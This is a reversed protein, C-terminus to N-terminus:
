PSVRWLSGDELGYVLSAPGFGEPLPFIATAIAAPNAISALQAVEGGAITVVRLSGRRADPIALDAVGDRNWDVVAALGQERSGIAHNSFGSVAADQVLGDPTLEFYRLTGGIHPTEVYAVEIAGDGDFDAAGAPNLWRSPRGIPPAEDLLGVQGDFLSFVALASGANIYSRVVIAEVASDDNLDVLRVRLDEFVSDPPLVFSVPQADGQQMTLTAAETADGLIGHRYRETAGTLWARTTGDATVVSDAVADSPSDATAPPPAAILGDPTIAFWNGDDTQALVVGAATIGNGVGGALALRVVPAPSDIPTVQQAAVPVTSLCVAAATAAIRSAYSSRAFSM